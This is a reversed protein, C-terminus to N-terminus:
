ISKFNERIRMLNNEIEPALKTEASQNSENPKKNIKEPEINFRNKFIGSGLDHSKSQDTHANFYDDM